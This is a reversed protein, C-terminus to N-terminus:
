ERVQVDDVYTWTGYWDDPHTINVLRLLITQGRYISLDYTFSRWGLDNIPKECGFNSGTNGLRSLLTGNVSIEFRDYKEGGLKDYTLIRYYVTLQPLGSSPVAVNQYIWSQGVPGGQGVRCPANEQGLVVAYNGGHRQSNVVQPTLGPADGGAVWGSFNGTEFGGNTVWNKPPPPYEKEVIPMYVIKPGPPPRPTMAALVTNGYGNWSSWIESHRTRQLVTAPTRINGNADALAYFIYQAEDDDLWTMILNDDEDTTISVYVNADSLSNDVTYIAQPAAANQPDALASTAGRIHTMYAPTEVIRGGGSDPAASSTGPCTASTCKRLVINDVYAGEPYTVTSDSNFILAVWVNPQGMLNGLTYVDELDLVRATWGSSNGSTCTGSYETGDISAMRCVQDYNQETNLWLMFSLDGATADALSFPGYTMWSAANNPYNSGCSLASGNAGGGVAWGSYSGAYPRCTRRAWYYEGNTTGNNDHVRWNGPFSGEFTENVIIVWQAQATVSQVNSWNSNGYPNNARVRYYYTGPAKGSANWFTGTGSYPTAPTTFGSNDDEQLTYTEARSAASWSVTYNGDGDPNSIANLVPTDPTLSQVTVSRASSWGSDGCSNSAKVRYYYTGTAKGSANWSTATGSYATVPSSFGSNDDEQLTYTDAGNVASWSVTYNGDGDSNSITNLAPTDPASCIPSVITYQIQQDGDSDQTWAIGLRNDSLAIADAYMSDAGSNGNSTVATPPITVTGSSNVVAYYIELYDNANLGTYVIAAEGDPMATVRPMFNLGTGDTLRTASKFIEGSNTLLAYYIDVPGEASAAQEWTLVFRNGTLAAVSPPYARPYSGTLNTLATAPKVVSGSNSVIAYRVNYTGPQRGWGFAINGNPAVDGAPSFDYTEETVASNDTLRTVSRVLDGYPNLVAYIIESVWAAGNYYDVDWMAVVNNDPTTAVAVWGQDYEDTTVRRSYRRGAQFTDLYIEADESGDDSDDDTYIQAFSTGAMTDLAIEHYRSADHQPTARITARTWDGVAAGGPVQVKVVIEKESGSAITGTSNGALPTTGNAEYFSVPWNSGAYTARSMVFSENSAGLNKVTLRFSTAEERTASSGQHEPTVFVNYAPRNYDFLVARNVSVPILYPYELGITGDANEIGVTASRTDGYEGQRNNPYQFKIDNSGEYLIVQFTQAEAPRYYLPVGSWEVVLYRNPSSGFTRYRVTGGSSPNLDDWFPAILNNPQRVSPPSTNVYYSATQTTDFGIYGNADVYFQTYGQDYFRFTFGVNFPGAWDEDRLTISTGGSTGIWAYTAADDWTYGFRDPGGTAQTNLPAKTDPLAHVQTVTQRDRDIQYIARQESGRAHGRVHVDLYAPIDMQGLRAILRYEGPGLPQLHIVAQQQGSADLLYAQGRADMRPRGEKDSVTVTGILLDRSFTVELRFVDEAPQDQALATEAPPPPGLNPVWAQMPMLLTVAVLSAVLRVKSNVVGRSM